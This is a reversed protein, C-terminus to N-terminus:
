AGLLSVWQAGLVAQTTGVLITRIDVEVQATIATSLSREEAVATDAEGDARCSLNFARLPLACNSMLAARLLRNQLIIEYEKERSIGMSRLINRKMIKGDQVFVQPNLNLQDRQQPFSVSGNPVLLSDWQQYYLL